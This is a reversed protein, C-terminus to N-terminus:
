QKSINKKSENLKEKLFSNYLANFYTRNKKNIDFERISSQSKPVGKLMGPTTLKIIGEPAILRVDYLEDLSMGNYWGRHIYTHCPQCVTLQKRGLSAVLKDFGRYGTFKGGSHKIPKIHHNVLQAPPGIGCISCCTTEKFKTRTNFKNLKMFDITIQTFTNNQNQQQYNKRLQLIIFMLEKYNLLVSWKEEKNLTYSSAIRLDTAKINNKDLDPVSIDTYGYRNIVEKVTIRHKTAITKICSFYLIYIWRNLRSPYSITRIYYNCLGTMFQNYKTIIEHDQLVTLFGIERPKGGILFKKLKFRNELRQVDPHVQINNFRQPILSQKSTKRILPNTQKYIEFGLFQAKEKHINTIKTKEISLELNLKEKLFSAIILKIKKADERSGKMWFTWDDAYRQYYYQIKLNEEKARYTTEMLQHKYDLFKETRTEKIETQIQQTNEPNKTFYNRAQNKLIRAVHVRRNSKGIMSREAYTFDSLKKLGKTRTRQYERFVSLEQDSLNLTKYEKLYEKLQNTNYVTDTMGLKSIQELIISFDVKSKRKLLESISSKNEIRNKQRRAQSRICEYDPNVQSQTKNESQNITNIENKLEDVVFKDFEHMYINFLIPSAIGGQPIGTFTDTFVNDHMTGAKLGQRIIKLFKKCKIKKNLIEMLKSQKVNDYAGKIDGEIVYNSFNAKSKINEINHTPDKRERFGANTDYYEFEPEYIATLITTIGKQVIKDCFDPLGLPRKETKGPKPIMIRRIPQWEYLGTKIKQSIDKYLDESIADATSNTTGPTMSGKNKQLSRASARLLNEDALINILSGYPDIDTNTTPNEKKNKFYNEGRLRINKLLTTFQYEEYNLNKLKNTIEPNKPLNKWKEKPINEWTSIQNKSLNKNKDKM